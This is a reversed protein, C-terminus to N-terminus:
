MNKFLYSSQSFYFNAKDYTLYIGLRIGLRDLFRTIIGIYTYQITSLTLIICRCSFKQMNSM